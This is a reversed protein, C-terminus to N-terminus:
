GTLENQEQEEEITFVQAPCIDKIKQIALKNISPDLQIGFTPESSDKAKQKFIRILANNLGVTKLQRQAEAVCLECGICKQPFTIKLYKAM